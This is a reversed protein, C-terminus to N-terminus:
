AAPRRRGEALRNQSMELPVLFGRGLVEGPHVVAIGAVSSEDDIV